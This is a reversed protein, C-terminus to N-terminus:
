QWEPDYEPQLFVSSTENDFAKLDKLLEKARREIKVALRADNVPYQTELDNALNWIITQYWEQPMDLSDSTGIMDAMRRLVTLTLTMPYAVVTSSPAPWLYLTGNDRQPDYYWNVPTSASTTKNPQDFYEERSMELMPTEIGDQVRRVSTVRMPKSIGPNLTYAAQDAVLTLTSETRTWLHDAAGLTKILLNLNETGDALMRATLAEGESGVGLINFARTVLQLGTMAFSTSANVTMAAGGIGRGHDPPWGRLLDL